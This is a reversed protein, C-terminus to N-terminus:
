RSAVSPDTPVDAEHREGESLIRSARDYTLYNWAWNVFVNLRNRFGVLYMLHLGLWAFWGVTGSLRAGGPLEAVAERRGITAMSGKDRYQFPTPSENRLSRAIQEAVHKGGQIAPQAVQPLPRDSEKSPSAAIDGIAFVEPHGPVRLYEDVVVRGRVTEANLTRALPSATVGAAWVVTRAPVETGDSLRAGDATVEEVGVGLRVEVGLRELETRADESSAPKFGGLLRDTPEVLVIKAHRVPLEPFDHAFVRHYLEALGGAMEVGTPGGGSVVVDLSGAEAKSPDLATREFQDLLHSRLRVADDLTKLAFAHQEVGDIGFDDSIAGCALVLVDYSVASGRDLEVCRRDVDISTARAMLVEVNRQKQFVGRISRAVDDADLGATAVQYLLPQFTHFNNADIVTIRVPEDALGKVLALGGFGAGIVVVRPVSSSRAPQTRPMGSRERDM